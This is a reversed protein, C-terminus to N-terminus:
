PLVGNPMLLPVLQSWHLLLHDSPLPPTYCRAALGVGRIEQAPVHLSKLLAMGARALEARSNVFRPLTVSRSLNDCIGHGQRM